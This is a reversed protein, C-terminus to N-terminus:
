NVTTEISQQKSTISKGAQNEETHLEPILDEILRVAHKFNENQRRELEYNHLIGNEDTLQGYVLNTLQPVLNRGHDRADDIFRGSIARWKRQLYWFGYVIGLAPCGLAAFISIDTAILTACGIVISSLQLFLAKGLAAQILRM